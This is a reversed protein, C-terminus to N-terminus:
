LKTEHIFSEIDEDNPNDDVLRKDLRLYSRDIPLHGYEDTFEVGKNMKLKISENNKTVGGGSYEATRHKLVKIENIMWTEADQTNRNMVIFVDTKNVLVAGGDADAPYPMPQNGNKDRQRQSESRTHISLLISINTRKTYLLMNTYMEM